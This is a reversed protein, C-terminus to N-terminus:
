INSAIQRSKRYEVIKERFIFYRLFLFIDSSTSRSLSGLPVADLNLLGITCLICRAIYLFVSYFIRFINAVTNEHKHPSHLLDVEKVANTFFM